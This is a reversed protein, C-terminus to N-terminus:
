SRPKKLAIKTVNIQKKIFLKKIFLELMKIEDISSLLLEPDFSINQDNKTLIDESTHVDNKPTPGVHSKKMLTIFKHRILLLKKHKRNTLWWIIIKDNTTVM